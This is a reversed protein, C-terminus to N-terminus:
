KGVVIPGPDNGDSPTLRFHATLKGDDDAPWFVAAELGPFIETFGAGIRAVRYGGEEAMHEPIRVVPGDDPKGCMGSACAPKCHMGEIHGPHLGRPQEGSACPACFPQERYNHYV